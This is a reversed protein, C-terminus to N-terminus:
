SSNTSTQVADIVADSVTTPTKSSNDTECALGVDVPAGSSIGQELPMEYTYFHGAVLPAFWQAGDSDGGAFLECEARQDQTGSTSLSQLEM